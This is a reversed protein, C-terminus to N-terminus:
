NIGNEGILCYTVYRGKFEGEGYKRIIVPWPAFVYANVDIWATLILSKTHGKGFYDGDGFLTRKKEKLSRGGCRLGNAYTGL